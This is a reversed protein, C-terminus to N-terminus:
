VKRATLYQMVTQAVATGNTAEYVNFTNGASGKPGTGTPYVTAGAPLTVLEPGNEGVLATGPTRITGGTALHPITGFHDFHPAGPIANVTDVIGNISGIGGNVVDIVSNIVGRIFGVVGDFAGRITGGIAGFVSGIVDGINQIAGGIWSGIPAIVSNWLWNFAGGIAGIAPSIANDWLWSAIAGLMQFYGVISDVVPMIVANWLWNFVDGIANIAPQVANTWLWAVVSGLFQFGAVIFNVVPMIANEWLWKAGLGVLTFALLWLEIIPWIISNWLWTFIAGIANIIPHVYYTWYLDIAKALVNFAGVFFGVVPSIVSNWLWNWATGIADMCVKWADQFFTTQTAVWIIGAVLAGIGVILLGIPNADMAANWLWQAATAVGMAVSSAIIGAKALLGGETNALQAATNSWWSAVGTVLTSNMLGYAIAGVKAAAGSAYSAGAAGYSAAAFGLQVAKAADMVATVAKFGMYAAIAGIVLHANETMWKAVDVLIPVIFQLAQTLVGAAITALQTIMPLLGIIAGTVQTSISGALQTLPPLIQALATGLSGAITTALSALLSVIQPLVPGLSTFILHLPSFASVLGLVQPILPQVSAWIQKFAVFVPKAASEVKGISEYAAAGWHALMSQNSGIDDVGNKFGGFFETAATKARDFVGYAAAGWHAMASQNSDIGDVGNHFGDFFSHVAEKVPSLEEGVKHLKETFIEGFHEIHPTAKNMADAMGGIMPTVFPMVGTMVAKTLEGFAVKSRAIEGPLTEGAAKAAGGFETSLEALIVKQAGMMDGSAQMAKIQDEQGKTFAVGVRHLKAIGKTPDNLAIGLQIASASADGGLKAAMNAAATTADDFIKDPGVNKLNTFTQLVQETKGISDYTQGSYGSISKALEDMGKVSLNAANGTSAIGATFQANLADASAYEKVGKKVFEGVGLAIGITGLGEMLHGGLEKGLGFLGGSEAM